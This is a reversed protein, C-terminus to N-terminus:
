VRNRKIDAFNFFLEDFKEASRKNGIRPSSKGMYTPEDNFDTEMAWDEDKEEEAKQCSVTAQAFM